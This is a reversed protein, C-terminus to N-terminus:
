APRSPAASVCLPSSTRNPEEAEVFNTLVSEAALKGGGHAASKM